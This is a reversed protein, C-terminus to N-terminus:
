PIRRSRRYIINYNGKDKTDGNEKRRFHLTLNVTGRHITLEEGVEDLLRISIEDIESRSLPLYHRDQFSITTVQNEQGSLTIKRLLPLLESGVIQPTVIDAHIFMYYNNANLDPSFEGTYGPTDVTGRFKKKGNFGLICSLTDSIELNVGEPLTVRVRNFTKDLEFKSIGYRAPIISNIVEVLQEVSSFHIDPIEIENQENTNQNLFVLVNEFREDNLTRMSYTYSVEALAVEFEEPIFHLKQALKNTFRSLSNRSFYGASASSSLHIYQSM